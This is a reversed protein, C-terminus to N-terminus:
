SSLGRHVLDKLRSGEDSPLDGTVLKVTPQYDSRRQSRKRERSGGSPSPTTWSDRIMKRRMVNPSKMVCPDERPGSNGGM